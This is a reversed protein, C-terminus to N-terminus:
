IGVGKMVLNLKQLKTKVSADAMFSGVQVTLGGILSPNVTVNLRIEKNFINKLVEALRRRSADNLTQASVVFVPLIGKYEEYLRIFVPEIEPFLSLRGNEVLVGLFRRMSDSLEAKDSVLEIGQRRGRAGLLRSMILRKFEPSDSILQTLERVEGAVIDIRDHAVAEEFLASAYKKALEAKNIKKAM